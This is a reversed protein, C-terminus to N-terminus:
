GLPDILRKGEILKFIIQLVSVEVVDRYTHFLWLRKEDLNVESLIIECGDCCM